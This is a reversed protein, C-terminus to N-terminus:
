KAKVTVSLAKVRGAIEEIMAIERRALELDKTNELTGRRSWEARRLDKLLSEAEDGLEHEVSAPLQCAYHALEACGAHPSHEARLETAVKELCESVTQLYGAVRVREEVTKDRWRDARGLIVKLLELIGQIVADDEKASCL